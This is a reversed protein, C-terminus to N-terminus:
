LRTADIVRRRPDEDLWPRNARGAFISIVAPVGAFILAIVAISAPRGGSAANFLYLPLAAITGAGIFLTLLYQSWSVLFGLLGAAALGPALLPVAVHLTARMRSAGLARAQEEYSSDYRAFVGTLVFITYPLVQILHALAVWIVHGTWGAQLFLINIGIAMSIQPLLLPVSFVITSLRVRWGTRMGLVKAAPAGLVLSIAVALLAILASNMTAQLFNPQSLTTQWELASWHPPLPAPYFWGASVSYVALLVLPSGLVIYAALKLAHARM